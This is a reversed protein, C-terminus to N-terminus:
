KAAWVTMMRKRGSANMFSKTGRREVLGKTVLPKLRPTLSWLAIGSKASLEHSTMGGYLRLIHLVQKELNTVKSSVNAAAIKSTLPDTVRAYANAM